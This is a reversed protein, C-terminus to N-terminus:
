RESRKEGQKRSDCELYVIQVRADCKPHVLIETEVGVPSLVVCVVSGDKERSQIWKLLSLFIDTDTLILIDVDLCWKVEVMKGLHGNLKQYCRLESLKAELIVAYKERIGRAHMSIYKFSHMGLYCSQRKCFWLKYELGVTYLLPKEQAEATFFRGPICSVHTWDRPRPSRQLLACCGM